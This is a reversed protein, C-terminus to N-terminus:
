DFERIWKVSNVRKVVSTLMKEYWQNEKDAWDPDPKGMGQVLFSCCRYVMFWRMAPNFHGSLIDGDDTMRKPFTTCEVQLQTGGLLTPNFYFMNDVIKYAPPAVQGGFNSTVLAQDRMADYPVPCWVAGILIRLQNIFCIDNPIPVTITGSPVDIVRLKTQWGDNAEFMEMAIYDLSERIGLNLKDDTYFGKRTATKNLITLVDGKLDGLTTAM